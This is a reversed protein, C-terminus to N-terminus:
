ARQREADLGQAARHAHQDGRVRRDRRGRLSPNVVTPRVPLRTTSMCTTCPSRSRASPCGCGARKSRRPDRGHRRSQRADLDRKRISALPMRLTVAFSVRLPVAPTRDLHPGGVPEALGLDLPHDVSDSSCASASTRARPSISARFSASVTSRAVSFASTCPASNRPLSSAVLIRSATARARPRAGPVLVGARDPLRRLAHVVLRLLEGLSQHVGRKSVASRSRRTASRGAPSARQRHRAVPDRELRRVDGTSTSSLSKGYPSWPFGPDSRSMASAGRRGSPGCSRRCSRRCSRGRPRGGPRPSGTASPAPRPPGGPCRSRASREM